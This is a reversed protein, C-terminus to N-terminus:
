DGCRHELVAGVLVDGVISPEASIGFQTAPEWRRRNASAAPKLGAGNFSLQVLKHTNFPKERAIVALPTRSSARLWRPEEMSLRCLQIPATASGTQHHHPIDFLSLSQGPGQHLGDFEGIIPPSPMM